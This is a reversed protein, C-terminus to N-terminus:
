VTPITRLSATQQIEKKLGALYDSAYQSFSQSEVKKLNAEEIKLPIGKLM